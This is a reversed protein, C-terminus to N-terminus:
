TRRTFFQRVLESEDFPVLLDEIREVHDHGKGFLVGCDYDVMRECFFRIAEERKDFHALEASQGDALDDLIQQPDEHRPDHVTLIFDAGSAAVMGTMMRRKM